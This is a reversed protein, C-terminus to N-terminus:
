KMSAVYIYFYKTNREQDQIYVTYWGVHDVQFNCNQEVHSGAKMLGRPIRGEKWKIIFEGNENYVGLRINREYLMVKGDVLAEEGNVFARYENPSIVSVKRIVTTSNGAEDSASYTINYDGVQHINFTGKNIVINENLITSVDDTVTFDDFNYAGNQVFILRNNGEFKIVPQNKDINNVRVPVFVINGVTDSVKFYFLGNENFTYQNSVGNNLIEITENSTITATVNNKTWRTETLSYTVEPPTTDINGVTVEKSAENGALDMVKFIFTGNEKFVKKNSGFNNIILIDEDSTLAVEVPKSTVKTNSVTAELTPPIKDINDIQVQIVKTNGLTDELRFDYTGNESFSFTDKNIKSVISTESMGEAPVYTLTIEEQPEFTVIVDENTAKKTSYTMKPSLVEKDINYVQAKTRILTGEGDKVKFYFTGNETFEYENSGGNNLIDCTGNGNVKLYAIVNSATFDTTSYEVWTVINKPSFTVQKQTEIINSINGAEDMFKMKLDLNQEPQNGPLRFEFGDSVPIWVKSYNLGGDISYCYKIKDKNSTEDIINELSVTVYGTTSEDTTIDINGTPPINDLKFIDTHNIGENGAEDIGKVFLIYDGTVGDLTAENGNLLTADDWSMDSDWTSNDEGLSSKEVWKGYLTSERGLINDTVIGITTASKVPTLMTNPDFALTPAINDFLFKKYSTYHIDDSIAKLHLYKEGNIAQGYTFSESVAIWNGDEEEPATTSDTWQYYIEDNDGITDITVDYKKHYTGDNAPTTNVTITEVDMDIAFKNSEVYEGTGNGLDDTVEVVLVYDGSETVGTNSAQVITSTEEGSWVIFNDPNLPEDVKKWMYKKTQIGHDDSVSLSVLYDARASHTGYNGNPTFTVDPRKSDIKFTGTTRRVVQYCGDWVKVHLYYDGMLGKPPIAKLGNKFTLANNWLDSDVQINDHVSWIYKFDANDDIGSGEPNDAVDVTVDYTTAYTEDESAEMSFAVTPEMTDLKVPISKIVQNGANDWVKMHLYYIGEWGDPTSITGGNAFTYASNWASDNESIGINNSWLYKFVKDSPIGTGTSDDRVTVITTYSPQYGNNPMPLLQILPKKGDIKTTTPFGDKINNPYYRGSLDRIGSLSNAILYASSDESYDGEQVQYSYTIRYRDDLEKDSVYNAYVRNGNKDKINLELNNSSRTVVEDFDVQIDVTEGIKRNSHSLNISIINPDGKDEFYLHMDKYKAAFGDGGNNQYQTDFNIAVYKVNNPLTENWEFTRGNDSKGSNEDYKNQLDWKNDTYGYDIKLQPREFDDDSPWDEDYWAESNTYFDVTIDGKKIALKYKHLDYNYQLYYDDKNNHSEIWTIKNENGESLKYRVSDDSRFVPHYVKLNNAWDNRGFRIDDDDIVGGIDKAYTNSNCLAISFIVTMLCVLGIKSKYLWKKFMM